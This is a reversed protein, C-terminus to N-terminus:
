CGLDHRGILLPSPCGPAIAPPNPISAPAMGNHPGGCAEIQALTLTNFDDCPGAHAVGTTLSFPALVTAAAVATVALRAFRNRM